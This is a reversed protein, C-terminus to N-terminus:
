HRIELAPAVLMPVLKLSSGQLYMGFSQKDTIERM